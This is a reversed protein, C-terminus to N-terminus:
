KKSSAMALTAPKESSKNQALNLAGDGFKLGRSWNPFFWYELAVPEGDGRKAFTFGSGVRNEERRANIGLVMGEWRHRDVSYIMIVNRSVTGPTLQFFYAGSPFVLDGVKFSETMTLMTPWNSEDLGQAFIGPVAVGLLVLGLVSLVVKRFNRM